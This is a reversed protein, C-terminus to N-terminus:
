RMFPFRTGSKEGYKIWQRNRRKELSLSDLYPFLWAGFAVDDTITEIEILLVFVDPFSSAVREAFVRFAGAATAPLIGDARSSDGQHATLKGTGSQIPNKRHVFIIKEDNKQGAKALAEFRSLLESTLLLYGAVMDDLASACAQASVTPYQETFWPEDFLLVAEDVRRFLNETEVILAHASIPSHKRWPVIRFQEGTHTTEASEAGAAIVVNRQSSKAAAAFDAGGPFEKGAILLTKPM